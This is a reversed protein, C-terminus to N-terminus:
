SQSNQVLPTSIYNLDVRGFIYDQIGSLCSSCLDIKRMSRDREKVWVDLQGNPDNQAVRNEFIDTAIGDGHNGCGVIPPLTFIFPFQSRDVAMEKGCRDCLIKLM